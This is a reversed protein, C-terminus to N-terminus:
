DGLTNKVSYGKDRGNSGSGIVLLEALLGSSFFQIGVIVLLVGMSLSPREHINWSPDPLVGAVHLVHAIGFFLLVASGLSCALIGGLALLHMPRKGFRTIFIVTLLDLMGRLYREVGYKSQGFQRQLNKIKIETVSFGRAAALVPIYRHLEGYVQIERLVEQRYAKFPCNFDHLQIKTFRRVVANFFRSPLSKELGGKGQYKWGVVLDYGQDIKEIFLPIEAPDDQLDTDLTLVIEGQAAEFGASYAAAKGFNRRLQIVRIRPDHNRLARLKAFSQDTSGDDVFVLEFDDPLRETAALIKRYLLELSEEENFVPLVFSILRRPTDKLLTPSSM